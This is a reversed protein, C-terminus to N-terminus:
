RRRATAPMRERRSRGVSEGALGRSAGSTPPARAASIGKLGEPHERQHSRFPSSEHPCRLSAKRSASARATPRSTAASSSRASPLWSSGSRPLSERRRCRAAPCVSWDVSSSVSASPFRSPPRCGTGSSLTSQKGPARTTPSGGSDGPPHARLSRTSCALGARRPCGGSVSRLCPQDGKEATM